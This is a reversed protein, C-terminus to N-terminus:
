GQEWLLNTRAFVGLGREVRLLGMAARSARSATQRNNVQM